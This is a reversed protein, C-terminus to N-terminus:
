AELQQRLVGEALQRVAATAPVAAQHPLRVDGAGDQGGGTTGGFRRLLEHGLGACVSELAAAQVVVM